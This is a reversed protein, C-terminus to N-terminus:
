LSRIRVKPMLQETIFALDEPSVNFLDALVDIIADVTDDELSLTLSM